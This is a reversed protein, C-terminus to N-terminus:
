SSRYIHAIPLVDVDDIKFDEEGPYLLIGRKKKKSSKIKTDNLFGKIHHV